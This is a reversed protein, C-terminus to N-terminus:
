RCGSVTRRQRRPLPCIDSASFLSLHRPHTEVAFEITVPSKYREELKTLLPHFHYVAPFTDKIDNRDSYSLDESPVDGTMIEEGFINRYSEIQSGKGTRSNRSYLVGPYSENNGITWVMRQLILSPFAQKGQMFTLILDQNETYFSYVYQVMRLAQYHADTLLLEGEEFHCIKGELDGICKRQEVLNTRLSPCQYKREVGLMECLTHLTSLYVRNAMDDGHSQCLAKYAVRTVGINLLTPMLGPIYQPMACRIAFVLPQHDGGLKHRTMVELDCIARELREPLSEQKKFSEATLIVFDPVPYCNRTLDVLMRGKYSIQYDSLDRTSFATILDDDELLPNSNVYAIIDARFEARLSALKELQEPTATGDHEALLLRVYGERQNEPTKLLFYMDYWRPPFEHSEEEGDFSYVVTGPKNGELTNNADDVDCNFVEPGCQAYRCVMHYNPFSARILIKM